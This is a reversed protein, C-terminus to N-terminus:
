KEKLAFEEIELRLKGKIKVVKSKCIELKKKFIPGDLVATHYEGKEGCPDIHLQNFTELMQLNLEKGILDEPIPPQLSIILAKFGTRIFDEFVEKPDRGWLPLFPFLGMESCVREVWKKHEELYIDGFVGGEIGNKKLKKLLNKFSSEYSNWSGKGGILPFGLAEAQAKLFEVKLGHGRTRTGKTNFMTLLAEVKIKKKLAQYLAFVSEKGGSFSVFVRM